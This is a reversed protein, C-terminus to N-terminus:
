IFLAFYQKNYNQRPNISKLTRCTEVYVLMSLFQNYLKLIFLSKAIMVCKVSQNHSLLFFDSLSNHHHEFHFVILVIAIVIGVLSNHFIIHFYSVMMSNFTHLMALINFSLVTLLFLLVVLTNQPYKFPCFKQQQVNSFQQCQKIKTKTELCCLKQNNFSIKSLTIM